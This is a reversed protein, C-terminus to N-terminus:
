DIGSESRFTLTFIGDVTTLEPLPREGPRNIRMSCESRKQVIAASRDTAEYDIILSIDTPTLEGKEMLQLRQAVKDEPMMHRRM